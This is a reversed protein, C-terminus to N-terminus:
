SPPAAARWNRWNTSLVIYAAPWAMALPVLRLPWSGSLQAVSHLASGETSLSWWGWVVSGELSRAAVVTVIAVVAAWTVAQPVPLATGRRGKQMGRLAPLLVLVLRLCTPLVVRYSTLSFVAANAPNLLGVTASGLTGAFLVLGFLSGNLWLTRRSLSGLAYGITWSWCILAVGHFVFTASASLLDFRAGPSELYGSTWNNVYLWAYIATVNAWQRSTLSLLMGLPAVIALLVV